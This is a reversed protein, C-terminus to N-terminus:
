YTEWTGVVEVFATQTTYGMTPDIYVSAQSYVPRTRNYLYTYDDTTYLSYKWNPDYPWYISRNYNALTVNNVKITNVGISGQFHDLISKVTKGESVFYAIFTNSPGDSVHYAYLTVFLNVGLLAGNSDVYWIVKSNSWSDNVSAEVTEQGSYFTTSFLVLSFIILLKKKFNGM